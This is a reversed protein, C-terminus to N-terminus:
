QLRGPTPPIEPLKLQGRDGKMIYLDRMILSSWTGLFALLKTPRPAYGRAASRLM